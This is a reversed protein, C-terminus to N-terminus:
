CCGARVPVGEAEAEFRELQETLLDRVRHPDGADLVAYLDSYTYVSLGGRYPEFRDDLLMLKVAEVLSEANRARARWEKMDHRDARPMQDIHDLLDEVVMRDVPADADCMERVAALDEPTM